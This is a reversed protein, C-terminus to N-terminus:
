HWANAGTMAPPRPEDLSQGAQVLISRLWALAPDTTRMPHWWAAEVLEVRGFPPEAVAV